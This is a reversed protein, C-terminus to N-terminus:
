RHRNEQNEISNKGDEHAESAKALIQDAAQNNNHRVIHYGPQNILEQKQNNGYAPVQRFQVAPHTALRHTGPFCPALIPIIREGAKNGLLGLRRHPIGILTRRSRLLLRSGLIVDGLLRSFLRGGIRSIGILTWRSRLLLRSRLIVSRLLRGFLRRRIRYIGILTWRSRLLLGSRLIIDGLLRSFLRSGIRYIGILTRCSRLLLGSRLIVSGLLGGFRRGGIRSIGILARNRGKTM